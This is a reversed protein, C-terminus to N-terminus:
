NAPLYIVELRPALEPHAPDDKSSYRAFSRPGAATILLGYNPYTGNVWDSVLNTVTVQTVCGSSGADFNQYLSTPDYDGGPINWPDNWTVTGESWQTTVRYISNVQGNNSDVPNLYLHAALITSGAPIESLDFRLLGRMEGNFEPRIDITAESGYNTGAKVRYIYADDSPLVGSIEGPLICQPPTATPTPTSTLSPM